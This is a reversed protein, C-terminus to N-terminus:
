QAPSLPRGDRSNDAVVTLRWPQAPQTVTSAPVARGDVLGRGGADTRQGLDSAPRDPKTDDFYGNEVLAICHEFSVDMRTGQQTNCRCGTLVNNHFKAQMKGRMREILNIDRTSVCSPKPFSQPKTLEDYVPASSPIDAIRPTRQDQYEQATLGRNSAPMSSVSADGGQEVPESAELPAEQPMFRDSLAWAAFGLLVACGVLVFLARPPKWRFHHEAQSSEYKDFIKPDLRILKCEGQAYESKTNVSIPREFEWRSIVKGKNPRNYHIHSNCLKRMHHDIFSPDQTICHLEFGKHRMTELESAYRPVASTPSRVPFFGQAEDIVILSNHPLEYWTKPHDFPVWTGDLKEVKLGRVNHFYVPRGTEKSRQDLEKITNLTKSHGQLGTRLVFM